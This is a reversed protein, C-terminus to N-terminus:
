VDDDAFHSFFVILVIIKKDNFPFKRNIERAKTQARTPLHKIKSRGGEFSFKIQRFGCRWLQEAKRTGAITQSSVSRLRLLSLMM